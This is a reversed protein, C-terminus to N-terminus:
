KFEKERQDEKQQGKEQGSKEQCGNEKGEKEFAKPRNKTFNEKTRGHKLGQYQTSQGRTKGQCPTQL